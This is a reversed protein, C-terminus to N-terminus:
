FSDKMRRLRALVETNSASEMNLSTRIEQSDCRLFPNTAQELALMVPVTPTGQKRLERVQEVRAILDANHPEVHLAFAGNELTYEHAPCLLTLPSLATIKAFSAAMDTPTGEFLRGCGMSFLVDGCFLLSQHPFHYAIHGMTHGSVEMVQAHLAGIELTEGEALGIDIAPIRYADLRSGIITCDTRAKLEESGGVHDAHHHTTLIYNLTWGRQELADLVPQTETPDIVATIRTAHCHLLYIYNKLRNRVDILNLTYPLDAAM